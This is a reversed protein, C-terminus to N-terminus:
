GLTAYLSYLKNATSAAGFPNSPGATYGNGNTRSGGTTDAYRLQAVSAPSSTLFGMWIPGAAVTVPTPFTFDTWAFGARALVTVESSVGLLAGPSGGSDAYLVARLPQGRKGKTPGRGQGSLFASLKVVRGAAATYRSVLKTDSPLDQSLSGPTTVGFSTVAATYTATYTTASAPAVVSHTAAGGDSWSGFTSTTGGLTQPTAASVSNGSGVIVRKTFPAAGSIGDISLQAGAPSSALTLDVTQPDLRVSTSGSLGSSDTATLVIEIWSPYEHDPASFSGSAVGSITQIEHTHCADPTPCHHMIFTWALRAAPITGDETDTAGGSFAIADGVKWTLTSAPSAISPVPPSGASITLPSGISSGGNSSTVRLRANYSGATTYVFSPKAATSDDFAGDGDLDWAYSLTGGSPDSSGSGDFAVSLPVAGSTPTATASAVPPAAANVYQIRTVTGANLDVYFLSGGPGAELDVPAGAGTLFPSIQTPDPLGNTGAKMFYICGRSYDAFFLGGTYSSPYAGAPSFAVGTLSSGNSLPCGDGPVISSAHAYSYYPAAVASGGAGTVTAYLSYHKDSLTPAGFPSSAGAAYDNANYRLEGPVSDYRLQTLDNTGSAIYGMWVTGAAVAVPTAFTFDTWGWAQGASVTVENSVGLLAGPSGSSDAYVVAKLKQTGSGAGLGSVYGSLKTVNGATATYKSVEKLNASATDTGAGPATTGFTSTAGGGAYLSACPDLGAGQYSAQIGDGEYCPWGFNLAAATPSPQRDLEEWGAWGVDGIWVESTGPRMTFRFPNRLGYAVIRRANADSSSALPNTPLAAGTAPDVRLISGNLVAPQGSPRRVSQARLAGGAATPPTLATGAAGPPDGCPNAPTPSGASGGWQGYDIANFNSGEGASVYLAGDAGFRLDGLSHSPFQQCWGQLLVQESTAVNGSITLRSLRGQVICGDTTPGPPSPCADNWVPATQGPPADYTYLVYIYPNAPFGPDLALGLLGRDWYDDVGTRLDAVTHPTASALSDYELLLGNKQAVFVRGDSAFRVATPQTLGSFVTTLQFSAPAVPTAAGTSAKAGLLPRDRGGDARAGNAGTLVSALAVGLCLVIGLRAIPTRPSQKL